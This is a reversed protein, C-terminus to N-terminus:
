GQHGSPTDQCPWGAKSLEQSVQGHVITVVLHHIAPHRRSVAVTFPRGGLLHQSGPSSGSVDPRIEPLRGQPREM